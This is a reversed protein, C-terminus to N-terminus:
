LLVWGIPSKESYWSSSGFDIAYLWGHGHQIFTVCFFQCSLSCGSKLIVCKYFTVFIIIILRDYTGSTEDTHLYIVFYSSTVYRTPWRVGSNWLLGGMLFKMLWMASDPAM